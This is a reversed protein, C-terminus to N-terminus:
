FSRSRRPGAFQREDEHRESCRVSSKAHALCLLTCCWGGDFCYRDRTRAGRHRGEGRSESRTETHSKRQKTTTSVPVCAVGSGAQWYGENTCSAMNKSPDKLVFGKASVVKCPRSFAGM